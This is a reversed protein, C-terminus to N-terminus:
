RIQQAPVGTVVAGPPVDKVVVANAGIRAGEGVTIPGIIKAGTGILVSREITPGVWDKDRLGITVFPRIMVHSHIEVLGDIVVQGHPFQVGPHMIVPDGISLQAWMVAARHALEPVIPIGRRRCSTKLRYLVLAGFADTVFTLRLIEYVIKPKSSLAHRGNWQHLQLAARLDGLM